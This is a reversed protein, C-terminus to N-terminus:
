LWLHRIWDSYLFFAGCKRLQGPVTTLVSLDAPDRFFQDLCKEAEALTARLEDVVSGMTQRDSVRRYLEEMWPELPASEAGALVQELRQALRNSREVMSTDTADLDDLTAGASLACRNGGGHGVCRITAGLVCRSM